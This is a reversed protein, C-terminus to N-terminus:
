PIRAVIAKYEDMTFAKLTTTRVVGTSGWALLFAAAAEDDPWETIGVYDYEGMTSYLGVVKGGMDQVAKIGKEARDPANKIDKIGDQTLRFLHIYLAV